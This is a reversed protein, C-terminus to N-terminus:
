RESNNRIQCSNWKWNVIQKYKKNRRPYNYFIYLNQSEARESTYISQQQNTTKNSNNILFFQTWMARFFDRKQLWTVYVESARAIYPHPACNRKKNRIRRKKQDIPENKNWKLESLCTTLVKKKWNVFANLMLFQTNFKENGRRRRRPQLEFNVFNEVAWM